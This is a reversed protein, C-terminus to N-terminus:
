FYCQKTNTHPASTRSSSSNVKEEAFAPVLKLGRYIIVSDTRESIVPSAQRLACVQGYLLIRAPFLSVNLAAYKRIFKYGSEDAAM